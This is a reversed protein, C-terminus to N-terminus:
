GRPRQAATRRRADRRTEGPTCLPRAHTRARALARVQAYELLLTKNKYPAGSLAEKAAIAPAIATFNIFASTSKVQSRALALSRLGCARPVGVRLYLCVALM